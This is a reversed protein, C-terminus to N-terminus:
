INNYLELLLKNSNQESFQKATEVAKERVAKLDKWFDLVYRIKEVMEEKTSIIFGNEGSKLFEKPGKSDSTIAVCAQSMAEVTVLSFSERISPLVFVNTTKLEEIFEETSYKKIVVELNGSESKFDNYGSLPGVIKFNIDTLEKAAYQIWELRKVPDLRGMYLVKKHNHDMIKNSVEEPNEFFKSSIGNPIYESNRLGLQQLYMDEWKSIRIVKNYLKLEWWSILGDYLLDFIKLFESRRTDKEFPAHTTLLVKKGTIKGLLLSILSHPHRFGHTHIIEPDIQLLRHIFFWLHAGGFSFLIPFRHIKLGQYEEYSKSTEYTGKIRNSSFIHVEYGNDLLAKADAFARVWIGCASPYTYPCLIVVKKNIM